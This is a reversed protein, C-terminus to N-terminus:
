ELNFLATKAYLPFLVEQAQANILPMTKIYTNIRDISSALATSIEFSVQDWLPLVESLGRLRHDSYARQNHDRALPDPTLNLIGREYVGHTFLLELTSIKTNYDNIESIQLVKNLPFPISANNIYEFTSFIKTLPEIFTRGNYSLHHKYTDFPVKLFRIFEDMELSYNSGGRYRRKERIYKSITVGTGQVIFAHPALYVPPTDKIINCTEELKKNVIKLEASKDYLIKDITLIREMSAIYAELNDASIYM